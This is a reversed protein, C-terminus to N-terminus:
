QLKGEWSYIKDRAARADSSDPALLLYRKMSVIAEVYREDEGLILARNFHGDPWWPAKDSIQQYLELADAYRKESVADEAQIQLRRLDEPLEPKRPKARYDAAIKEFAAPPPGGKRDQERLGALVNLLEKAAEAQHSEFAITVSGYVKRDNNTMVSFPPLEVSSWGMSQKRLRPAPSTHFYTWNRRAGGRGALTLSMEVGGEFVQAEAEKVRWAKALAAQIRRQADRPSLRVPRPAYEVPPLNAPDAPVLKPLGCGSLTLVLALTPLTRM